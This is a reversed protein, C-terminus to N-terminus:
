SPFAMGARGSRVRETMSNKRWQDPSEGYTLKFAKSLHFGASFGVWGAIEDLKANSSVLMRRARTLRLHIVYIWPSFGTRARFARRFHSYAVGLKAALAEVNVPEAHNEEFYREGWHVLYWTKPGRHPFNPAKPADPHEALIKTVDYPEYSYEDGTWGLYYIGMFRDKKPPGVEAALPLERGLADTAPWPVGPNIWGPKSSGAGADESTGRAAMAVAALFTLLVRRALPCLVPRSGIAHKMTLAPMQMTLTPM